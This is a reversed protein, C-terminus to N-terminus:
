GSREGMGLERALALRGRPDAAPTGSECPRARGADPPCKSGSSREGRAVSHSPGVEPHPSAERDAYGRPSFHGLVTLTFSARSPPSPDDPGLEGGTSSPPRRCTSRPCWCWRWSFIWTSCPTRPRPATARSSCTPTTPASPLLGESLRPSGGAWAARAVAAVGPPCRRPTRGSCTQQAASPAGERERRALPPAAPPAAGGAPLPALPPCPTRTRGVRRGGLGPRLTLASPEEGPAWRPLCSRSLPAAPLCHSKPTLWAPRAGAQSFLQLGERPSPFCPAWCSLLLGLRLHLSRLNRGFLHHSCPHATAKVLPRLLGLASLNIPSSSFLTQM